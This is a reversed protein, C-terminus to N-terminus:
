VRLLREWRPHQKRIQQQWRGEAKKDKCSAENTVRYSDPIKRSRWSPHHRWEVRQISSQCVVPDQRGISSHPDEGMLHDVIILAVRGGVSTALANLTWQKQFCCGNSGAIVEQLILVTIIIRTNGDRRTLCTWGNRLRLPLLEGAVVNQCAIRCSWRWQLRWCRRCRCRCPCNVDRNIDVDPEDNDAM